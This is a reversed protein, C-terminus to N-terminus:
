AIFSGGTDVGSAYCRGIEYHLSRNLFMVSHANVYGSDFGQGMKWSDINLSYIKM